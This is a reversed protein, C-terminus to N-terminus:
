LEMSHDGKKIMDKVDKDGTRVGPVSLRSKRLRSERRPSATPSLFMMVPM